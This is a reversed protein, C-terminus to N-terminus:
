DMTWNKPLILDEARQFAAKKDQFMNDIGILEKLEGDNIADFVQSSVGSLIVKIHRNKCMKCFANFYRLGTTDIFPVNELLIVRVKHKEEINQMVTDYKFLSELLLLSQVEYVGINKSLNYDIM